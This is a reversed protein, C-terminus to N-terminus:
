KVEESTINGAEDVVHIYYTTESDINYTIEKNKTSKITSYDTIIPESNKTIMYKIVGINDSIKFTLKNNKIEINSIVPKEIDVKIDLECTSSIGSRTKVYGYVKTEGSKKIDYNLIGIQNIKLLTDQYNENYGIGYYLGSSESVSTKLTVIVNSTYWNNLGITGSASLNCKPTSKDCEGKTIILNDETGNACYKSNSVNVLELVGIDNMIVQGYKINDINLDLVDIGKSTVTINSSSEMIDDLTKLFASKRGAEILISILFIIGIILIIIIVPIIKKIDKKFYYSM